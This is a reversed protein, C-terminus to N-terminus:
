HKTRHRTHFCLLVLVFVPLYIILSRTLLLLAYLSPFYSLTVVNRGAGINLALFYDEASFPEVQEGNLHVTWDDDNRISAFLTIDEETELSLEFHNHNNVTSPLVALWPETSVVENQKQISDAGYNSQPILRFIPATVGFLNLLEEYGHTNQLERFKKKEFWHSASPYFLSLQNINQYYSSGSYNVELDFNLVPLNHIVPGEKHYPAYDVIPFDALRNNQFKISFKELVPQSSAQEVSLVQQTSQHWPSVTALGDICIVFSLLYIRANPKDRLWSSLIITAALGFVLSSLLLRQILETPKLSAYLLGYGFILTIVFATLILQPFPTLTFHVNKRLIIIKKQSDSGIAALMAISLFVYPHFFRWNRYGIIESFNGFHQFVVAAFFFIGIAMLAFAIVVKTSHKSLQEKDILFLLCFVAPSIYLFQEFQIFKVTQTALTSLGSAVTSDFFIENFSVDPPIILYPLLLSAFFDGSNGAPEAIRAVIDYHSFESRLFLLNCFAPLCLVVLLLVHYFKPYHSKKRPLWFVIACVVLTVVSIAKLPVHYGSFYVTLCSSLLTCNLISPSKYFHIFLIILIPFLHAHLIMGSAQYTSHIFLFSTSIVTSCLIASALTLNLTLCLAGAGIAFACLGALGYITYTDVSGWNFIYGVGYIFFALPDLVSHVESLLWLPTGAQFDLSISPIQGSFIHTFFIYFSTHHVYNDLHGLTSSEQFVMNKIFVFILIQSICLLMASKIKSDLM